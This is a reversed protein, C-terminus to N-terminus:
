HEQIWLVGDSRLEVAFSDDALAETAGGVAELSEYSWNLRKTPNKTVLVVPV